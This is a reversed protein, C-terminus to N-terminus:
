DRKAYLTLKGSLKIYDFPKTMPNLSLSECVTKYYTVREKENLQALDGKIMVGELIKAPDQIAVQNM